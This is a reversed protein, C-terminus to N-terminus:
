PTFYPKAMRFAQPCPCIKMEREACVSVTVTRVNEPTQTSDPKGAAASNAAMPAAKVMQKSEEAIKERQEVLVRVLQAIKADTRHVARFRGM